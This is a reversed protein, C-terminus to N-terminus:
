VVGPVEEYQEFDPVVRIDLDPVANPDSPPVIIWRGNDILIYGGKGRLIEGFENEDEEIEVDEDVRDLSIWDWDEANDFYWDAFQIAGLTVLCATSVFFM